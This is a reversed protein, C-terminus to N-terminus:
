RSNWIKILIHLFDNDLLTNPVNRHYPLHIDLRCFSCFRCSRCSNSSSSSRWTFTYQFLIRSYTYELHSRFMRETIYARLLHVSEYLSILFSILCFRPINFVRARQKLISWSFLSLKGVITRVHVFRLFFNSFEVLVMIM